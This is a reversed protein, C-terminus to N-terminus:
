VPITYCSMIPSVFPSVRLTSHLECLNLDLCGLIDCAEQKDTEVNAAPSSAEETRKKEAGQM